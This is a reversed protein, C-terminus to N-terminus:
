GPGGRARGRRDVGGDHQGPRLRHGVARESSAASASAGDRPVAARQPGAVGVSIAAPGAHGRGRIPFPRGLSSRFAVPRDRGSGSRPAPRPRRRARRCRGATRGAPRRARGRSRHGEVAVRPGPLAREPGSTSPAARREPGLDVVPAPPADRQGHVAGAPHAAARDVTSALPTRGTRRRGAAPRRGSRRAPEVEAVLGAGSGDIGWTAIVTAISRAARRRPRRCRARRSAPRARGSGRRRRRRRARGTWRRATGRRRAPSRRGPARAPSARRPGGLGPRRQRSRSRRSPRRRARRSSPPSVTRRCRVTARGPRRGPRPRRAPAPAPPRQARQGVARGPQGADGVQAPVLGVPERREVVLEGRDARSTVSVASPRTIRGRGSCPPARRSRRRGGSPAPRRRARAPRRRRRPRPCRARGALRQGVEDPQPVLQQAPLLRQARRQTSLREVLVVDPDPRAAVARPGRVLLPGRVGVGAAPQHDATSRPRYVTGPRAAGATVAMRARSSPRLTPRPRRGPRADDAVQGASGSESARMTAISGRVVTSRRVASSVSGTSRTMTALASWSTTTVASASGGGRM